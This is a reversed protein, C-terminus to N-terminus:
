NLLILLFLNVFPFFMSNITVGFAWKGVAVADGFLRLRHERDQRVIGATISGSHIGIKLRTGLRLSEDQAFPITQLQLDRAFRIM